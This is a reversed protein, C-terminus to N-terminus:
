CIVPVFDIIEVAYSLANGDAGIANREREIQLARRDNKIGTLFIM